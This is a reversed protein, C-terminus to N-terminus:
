ATQGRAFSESSWALPPWFRSCRARPVANSCKTVDCPIGVLLEGTMCAKDLALCIFTLVQEVSRHPPGGAMGTPMKKMMMDALLRCWMSARIRYVLPLIVLPLLSKPGIDKEGGGQKEIM